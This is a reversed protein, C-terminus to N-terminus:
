PHRHHTFPERPRGQRQGEAMRATAPSHLGDEIGPVPRRVTRRAHEGGLAPGPEGQEAAGRGGAHRGRLEDPEPDERATRSGPEGVRGADDGHALRIAIRQELVEGAAAHHGPAM